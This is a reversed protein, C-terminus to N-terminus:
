RVGGARFTAVFEYPVNRDGASGHVLLRTGKPSFRFDTVRWVRVTEEPPPAGPPLFDQNSPLTTPDAGDWVFVRERVAGTEPDWLAIEARTPENPEVTLVALASGDPVFAATPPATTSIRVQEKGQTLDWIEVGPPSGNPVGFAVSGLTVALRDGRPDFHLASPTYTEGAPSCLTYLREGTAVNWLDVGPDCAVPFGAPGGAAGGATALLAGSPSVATRTAPYTTTDGLRTPRLPRRAIGDRYVLYAHNEQFGLNVPVIAMRADPSLALPAPSLRYIGTELWRTNEGTAVDFLMVEANPEFTRAGGRWLWFGRAWLVKRRDGSWASYVTLGSLPDDAPGAMDAPYEVETAQAGEPPADGHLTFRAARKPGWLVLYDGADVDAPVLFQAWQAALMTEPADALVYQFGARTIDVNPLRTNENWRVFFIDELEYGGLPLASEVVATGTGEPPMAGEGFWVRGDVRDERSVPEGTEGGVAVDNRQCATLAPGTVQCVTGADCALLTWHGTGDCSERDRGQCREEGPTCDANCDEPCAAPTEGGECVGNGCAAAEDCPTCFVGERTVADVGCRCPSAFQCVVRCTGEGFCRGSVSGSETLLDVSASAECMSQASAGLIPNSGPPCQSVLDSQACAAGVGAAEEGPGQCATLLCLALLGRTL